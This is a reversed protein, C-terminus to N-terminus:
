LLASTTGHNPQTGSNPCNVTVQTADSQGTAAGDNIQTFSVTYAGSSSPDKPTPSLYGSNNLTNALSGWNAGNISTGTRVKYNAIATIILKRNADCASKAAQERANIIAPIAILALIGVIIAVALMEILTFGRRRLPKLAKM